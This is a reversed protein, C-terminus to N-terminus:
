RGEELRRRLNFLIAATAGWIYREGYPIAWFDRRVLGQMRFHRQQNAPDLLFALPVALLAIDIVDWPEAGRKSLRYNTLLTAVIIGAIICLAYYHITFSLNFIDITFSSEPPSPISAVVGPSFLSLAATHM